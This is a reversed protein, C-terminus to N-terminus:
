PHTPLTLLCVQTGFDCKFEYTGDGVPVTRAGEGGDSCVPASTNVGDSGLTNTCTDACTEQPLLPPLPPPPSPPPRPPPQPFPPLKAAGYTLPGYIARRLHGAADCDYRDTAWACLHIQQGQADSAFTSGEGGDQCEGDYAYACTNDGILFDDQSM